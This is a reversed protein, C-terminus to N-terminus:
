EILSVLIQLEGHNDHWQNPKENIGCYLISDYQPTIDVSTGIVFLTSPPLTTRAEEDTHKRREKTSRDSLIKTDSLPRLIGMLQGLPRQRYYDLTVGGPECWWIDPLTDIQYRGSAQLRYRKGGELRLGTSQWFRDAAIVARGETTVITTPERHTIVMPAFQYGFDLHDIFVKWDAQILHWEKAHKKRFQQSFKASRDKGKAALKRFSKQTLPHNEFFYVSAWSWAYADNERYHTKSDFAFIQDLSRVGKNEKSDNLMKFRGWHLFKENSDPMQGLSIKRKVKGSASVTQTLTHTALYEAIGESYWPPGAGGFCYKVVGHTGEHLLLHRRYYDTPQEYLWIEDGLQYGAIFDPLTKPFMKQEAFRQSDKMLYATLHFQDLRTPPLQFYETWEPVALDFFQPLDDIAPTSPLDTYLTLHNSTLKRITGQSSREKQINPAAPYARSSCVIQTATKGRFAKPKAPRQNQFFIAFFCSSGLIIWPVVSFSNM